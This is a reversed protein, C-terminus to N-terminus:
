IKSTKVAVTHLIERASQLTAPTGAGLMAALEQVRAEGELEEVQTATRGNDARKSVHFHQDGFAALQPLHTVCLVQHQKGLNWLMEGVTMGVRGGIGSDIEDFVLTPIHDVEALVTKLALM